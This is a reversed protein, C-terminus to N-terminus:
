LCKYVKWIVGIALRWSFSRYIDKKIDKTHNSLLISGLDASPLSVGFAQHETKEESNISRDGKCYFHAKM